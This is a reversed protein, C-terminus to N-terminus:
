KINTLTQAPFRSRTVISTLVMLKRIYKVYRNNHVTNCNTYKIKTRNYRTVTKIEMCNNNFWCLPSSAGCFQRCLDRTGIEEPFFLVVSVEEWLIWLFSRCTKWVLDTKSSFFFFETALKKTRVIYIHFIEVGAHRIQM